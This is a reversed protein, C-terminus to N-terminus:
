EQIPQKRARYLMEDVAYLVLAVTGFVALALLPKWIVFGGIAGLIGGLYKIYNLQENSTNKLLNELQQEDYQRMNTIIMSYVDLNEVFGLVIRTAWEEIEESRAEILEPVRDLLHDMEDLATDLSAPLERVAKDVRRQFDEENVFRYVKLALGSVGQGAYEEVKEVTFDVIKKRVEESGLVQDVYASTISKMDRRFDPDELVGRAVSMALERYKPILGSEEIRAKIIEANILEDSIAKALRFIVRERQSPILGQGFIPRKERPQFLMTIALWNTFFGILGSVTIMLLLGEFNLTYGFLTLTQGPFDWLFSFVFLLGLVWPIFRLLPLAKAYGGAFRPPESPPPKPPPTHPLHRRVYKSFLTRIDRARAITIDKAEPLSEARHLSEPESIVGTDSTPANVELDSVADELTSATSPRTPDLSAPVPSSRHAADNDTPM